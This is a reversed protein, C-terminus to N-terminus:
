DGGTAFRGSAAGAFHAGFAFGVDHAGVIDDFEAKVNLRLLIMAQPVPGAARNGRVNKAQNCSLVIDPADGGFTV